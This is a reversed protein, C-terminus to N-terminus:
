FIQQKLLYIKELNKMGFTAKMGKVLAKRLPHRHPMVDGLDAGYAAHWLHGYRLLHHTVRTREVQIKKRDLVWKLFIEPDMRHGLEQYHNFHDFRSAYVDMAEPSGFAFRDNFGHWNDHCPVYLVGQDLNALKELKQGFYLNDFRLRFVWDFNLFNKSEFDKRLQNALSISRLQLYFARYPNGSHWDRKFVGHEAKIQEPIKVESEDEAFEATMPLRLQGKSSDKPYHAFCYVDCDQLSSLILRNLSRRTKDFDRVQGSFCLAVKM